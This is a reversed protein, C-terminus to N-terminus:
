YAAGLWRWAYYVQWGMRLWDPFYLCLVKEKSEKEHEYHCNDRKEDDNAWGQPLVPLRTLQEPSLRPQTTTNAEESQTHIQPIGGEKIMNMNECVHATDCIESNKGVTDHYPTTYSQSHHYQLTLEM